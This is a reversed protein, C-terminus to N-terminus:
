VKKQQLNLKSLAAAAKEVDNQKGLIVDELDEYAKSLDAPLVIEDPKLTNKQKPLNTKCKEDSPLVIQALERETPERRNFFDTKHKENLRELFGFFRNEFDKSKLCAAEVGKFGERLMEPCLEFLEEIDEKGLKLMYKNEHNFRIRRETQEDPKSLEFLGSDQNPRNEFRTKPPAHKAEARSAVKETTKKAPKETAENETLVLRPEAAYLIPYSKGKMSPQKQKSGKSTSQKRPM